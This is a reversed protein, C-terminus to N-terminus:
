IAAEQYGLGGTLNINYSNVACGDSFSRCQKLSFRDFSPYYHYDTWGQWAAIAATIIAITNLTLALWDLGGIRLPKFFVRTKGSGFARSEM